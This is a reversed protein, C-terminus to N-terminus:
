PIGVIVCLDLSPTGSYLPSRSFINLVLLQPKFPFAGVSEHPHVSSGWSTAGNLLPTSGKSPLLKSLFRTTPTPRSHGQKTNVSQKSVLSTIHGAAAAM